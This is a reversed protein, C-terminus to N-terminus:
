VYPIARFTKLIALQFTPNNHLLDIEDKLSQSRSGSAASSSKPLLSYSNPTAVEVSKMAISKALCKQSALHHQHARRAIGAPSAEYAKQKRAKSMLSADPTHVKLAM